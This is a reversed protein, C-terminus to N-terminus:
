SGSPRRSSDGTGVRNTMNDPDPGQFGAMMCMDYNGAFVKEVWAGEELEEITADIGIAALQSKIVKACDAYTSGTFVLFSLHLYYGDADKTYGADELLQIAGEVDQEGIDADANYAWDLFPPYFGYAPAQLGNTGKTSIEERDLAKAVAQRVALDSTYEGNMNFCLQFRRGASLCGVKYNSDAELAAVSSAPVDTLYDLEGNMFAQYATDTDTSIVYIVKDISPEGGFYDPNKELTISVGSQESVFKFPGTGVPNKNFEEASTDASKCIISAADLSLRYLLANFPASTKITVTYDDDCTISEIILYNYNVGPNAICRELSYKVDESTMEEGNHFKVGQRLHFVTTTDDIVEWSEALGPVLNMDNDMMVLRDFMQTTVRYTGISAQVMPDMYTPSEPIAVILTDKAGDDSGDTTTSSSGTPGCGALMGCLLFMATFLAFVRKKM